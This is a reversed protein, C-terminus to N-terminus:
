AVPIEAMFEALTPYIVDAGAEALAEAVGEKLFHANTSVAIYMRQTRAYRIMDILERNLFPEGQFFLQLYFTAHQLEDVIRKFAQFDM